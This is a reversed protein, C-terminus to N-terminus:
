DGTSAGIDGIRGTRNDMIRYAEGQLFWVRLTGAPYRYTWRNADQVASWHEYSDRFPGPAPRRAEWFPWEMPWGISAVVQPMTMRLEVRGERIEDKVREPWESERALIESQVARFYEERGGPGFDASDPGRNLWKLEGYLRSMSAGAIDARPL